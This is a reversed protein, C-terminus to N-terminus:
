FAARNSDDIDCGDNLFVQHVLYCINLDKEYAELFYM